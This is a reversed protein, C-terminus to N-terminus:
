GSFWDKVEGPELETFAAALPSISEVREVTVKHCDAEKSLVAAVAAESDDIGVQYAKAATVNLGIDKSVRVIRGRMTESEMAYTYM